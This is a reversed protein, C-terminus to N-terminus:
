GTASAVPPQYLVKKLEQLATKRTVRLRKIRDIRPELLIKVFLYQCWKPVEAVFSEGPEVGPDLIGNVDVTVVWSFSIWKVIQM